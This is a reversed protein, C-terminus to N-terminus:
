VRQFRRRDNLVDVSLTKQQSLDSSCALLAYQVGDTGQFLAEVIWETGIPGFAGPHVDRYRQGREVAQKSIM